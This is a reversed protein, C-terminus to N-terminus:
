RQTVEKCDSTFYKVTIHRKKAIRIENQMGESIVDGFVWVEKCRKLMQLALNLGKKRESEDDDNLFRTFYIHPCIPVRNQKVAFLSYRLANETNRVVDGRYPSAIYVWPVYNEGDRLEKEERRIKSYAEGFTPDPYHENNM